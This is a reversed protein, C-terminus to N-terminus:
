VKGQIKSQIIEKMETYEKISIKTKYNELSQLFEILKNQYSHSKFNANRHGLFQVIKSFLDRIVKEDERLYGQEFLQWIYQIALESPHTMDSEYFRYDRLDDMMIEYSPFYSAEKFGYCIHEIALLLTAKSLQNGNVGDKLHRIPSVTFIIKLDPNIKLLRTLLEQYENIIDGMSLRFREFQKVPTRHCNGVILEKEKLEFVWATGFTITLIKLEKLQNHCYEIQSNIANLCQIQDESSFDSHHQYSHWQDNQFFLDEESYIKNDIIDELATKISIPNYLIGSPNVISDYGNTKLRHGINTAFCSGINLIKDRLQIKDDVPKVIVLSRFNPINM